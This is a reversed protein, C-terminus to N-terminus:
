CIWTLDFSPYLGIKMFESTQLFYASSVKDLWCGLFWHTVKNLDFLTVQVFMFSSRTQWIWLFFYTSLYLSIPHISLAFVDKWLYNCYTSYRIHLRTTPTNGSSIPQWDQEIELVFGHPKNAVSYFFWKEEKELKTLEFRQFLM